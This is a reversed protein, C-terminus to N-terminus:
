TCEKKLVFTVKQVNLKLDNNNILQVKMFHYMYKITMMFMIHIIDVNQEILHFMLYVYMYLIYGSYMNRRSM